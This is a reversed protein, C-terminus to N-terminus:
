AGKNTLKNYQVTFWKTKWEIVAAAVVIALLWIWKNKLFDM